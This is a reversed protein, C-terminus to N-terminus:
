TRQIDEGKFQRDRRAEKFPPEKQQAFAQESRRKEARDKQCAKVQHMSEEQALCKNVLAAYSSFKHM